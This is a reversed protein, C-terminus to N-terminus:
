RLTSPTSFPFLSSNSLPAPTSFPVLSSTSLPSSTTFPVLSSYTTPLVSSCSTSFPPSFPPSFPSLATFPSSSSVSPSSPLNDFHLNDKFKSILAPSSLANTSNSLPPAPPQLSNNALGMMPSSSTRYELHLTSQPPCSVDTNTSVSRVNGDSEDEDDEPACPCLDWCLNIRSVQMVAECSLPISIITMSKADSTPDLEYAFRKLRIRMKHESLEMTNTLPLTSHLILSFFYCGFHFKFLYGCGM